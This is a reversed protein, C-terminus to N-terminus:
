RPARRQPRPRPLEPRLRSLLRAREHAFAPDAQYDSHGLVPAPLPHEPTRGYALPDRLPGQDVEPTGDAPVRVPGGVPDTCRYLNGWCAVDRHLAALAPPGFHAPFWRGYLRELPSGYTLLAIRGRVSPPLQWAAAAALVSGQSHGSLVLRGGTRRTWTAMRWTLDPVAREAYCPPAFPHAARPWFTGVDWLIGITRRASADKYARRGWTAFLVFGIGVLWSGLAQSTEAVAQVADHTRRAAADPTKGTALAGALAVAGLLLTTATLVAVVLPARDTLTAMARAHAIDRTRGPDEPEGPHEHRIREREARALRATGLGLRAALLLLVALVPPVTSAQWTLLVPPGPLAAHTGDLWDAVRQAVGGSLVGGLACALLAVAPGGQGRMGARPDPSRRHLCGTVVALAVVLLGQAPMLAGFALDGPLPGTSRWGPRAWGAYVVTLLLLALAGLPLLRVLHRDPREDLRNESRGRRCVVAVAAAAWAALAATLLRGLADLAAPGGPRHDFRVAPAAVAAAVTLLAVATHAARLRAVLRRGYWFGPRTLASGDADPEPDHSIPRHSEYASWTRRSLYWLLVTLATPVLAALALRRGPLSWWPGHGGAAASAPPALFTLWTHRQACSRVGACQWAVLDLAVECAAAVLLVTLSLAALRVLLGYLRATRHRGAAAPRMWHALNVVMFPLLLLWLARSSDGSTLNCWVYAEQVPGHRPDKGAGADEARRFVAATDDGTVRVTRPDGLMQGPTTGGVGHVLLELEADTRRAGRREQARDM